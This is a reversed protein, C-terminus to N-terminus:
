AVKDVELPRRSLHPYKVLLQQRHEEERAKIIAKVEPHAALEEVVTNDNHRIKHGLVASGARALALLQAAEEAKLEIM